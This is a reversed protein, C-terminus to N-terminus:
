PWIGPLVFIPEQWGEFRGWLGHGPLGPSGGSRHPFDKTPFPNFVDSLLELAELNVFRDTGAAALDTGRKTSLKGIGGFRVGTWGDRSGGQASSALRRGCSAHPRSRM